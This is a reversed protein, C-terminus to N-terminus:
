RVKVTVEKIGEGIDSLTFQVIELRTQSLHLARAPPLRHQISFVHRACTAASQNTLRTQCAPLQNASTNVLSSLSRLLLSSTTNLHNTHRLVLPLM